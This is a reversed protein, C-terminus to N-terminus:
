GDKKGSAKEIIEEALSAPVERYAFFELSHTARGQTFSRLSTTYGFTQSLPITCRIIYTEGQADIAEIQGRKSNLDSIIDGMFQEPTVVELKMIPELLVPKAKGVGNKLGISGAMKFAMDSSDVEHYSGDYLTVKIDIIPYGALTGSELADKVGAEVAPVYEKPIDGGKVKDVFRFGSEREGPEIKLWVHGYQGRGGFQKIFRGEAEVPVTITEKYAVQPKGVRVSVNFERLMRDVLIELHLEGMGAILSQGTESDSRVVFTPDEESLKNLVDGMRDQDGKSKPEIVMSLVPEPFRISELLMPKAMDCLTDGTFTNKLGLTAAISGTDVEDIEERHNAHMIILRGLREKQRKSSNFVQAGVKVKGSYVRFYVLRGMFPDTVVKFALASFPADDSAQLEVTAGTEPDIAQAPPVDLPSPLYDVVADLLRQIGKNKFASGCLVPVIRNDRTLRRIAAKIEESTIGGGEVYLLMLKDDNEAVREILLQRRENVEVEYEAPVAMEQPPVNVDESFLWAKKDILDLVGKFEAEQGWHM